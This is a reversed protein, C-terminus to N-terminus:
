IPRVRFKFFGFLFLLFGAIFIYLDKYRFHFQYCDSVTKEPVGLQPPTVHVIWGQKQDELLVKSWTLNGIKKFDTQLFLYGTGAQQIEKGNLSPNEFISSKNELVEVYNHMSSDIVENWKEELNIPAYKGVFFLLIFGVSFMFGSNLLRM